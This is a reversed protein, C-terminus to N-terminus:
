TRTTSRRTKSCRTPPPSPSLARAHAVTGMAHWRRSHHTPCSVGRVQTFHDVIERTLATSCNKDRLFESVETIRNSAVIEQKNAGDVVTTVNAVIYAVVTAAFMLIFCMFIRDYDGVPVIDGYGTTTLSTIMFYLCAIYQDQFSAGRLPTYVMAADDYWTYSNLLTTVGWWTCTVLHAIFFVQLVIFIVNASAASLHFFDQIRYLYFNFNTSQLLKILKALRLLRIIKM